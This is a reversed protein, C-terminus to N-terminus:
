KSKYKAGVIPKSVVGRLSLFKIALSQTATASVTKFVEFHLHPGSTYGTNGSYAIKDGRYVKDGVEVVVGDKKLHYYTAFTGDNHLITVYNGDKAYKKAYGHRNSDSKTKVVLGDRAAYVKTGKKMVFDIAYRSRGKHTQKGNYGQSVYHATGKAYPLRYVYSDDHVADKSGIIWSYKYQYYTRGRGLTLTTYKFSSNAKVVVIKKTNKSEVINQYNSNIGVTVDYINDNFISVYIKKGSQKTKLYVRKKHTKNNSDSSYSSQVIETFFEEESIELIKKKNLKQEILLSKEKGKYKKYFKIAKEQLNINELLGDLEYATLRFFRKYNKNKISKYISDHFLHIIYDYNKQLKRLKLLYNKTAKKDNSKEIKYAYYMTANAEQKFSKISKQLEKVDDYQSLTKLSKYLPTGLQSFLLPYEKAFAFSFALLLVLLYRM